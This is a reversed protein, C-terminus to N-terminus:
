LLPLENIQGAYPWDEVHQVLGARLPNNRVYEWKAEYSERSRIVHDFYGKEWYPPAFTATKLVKSLTGKLAKMWESLSISDVAFATFLHIHDPMLVYRGVTVGHESAHSSFTKFSNHVVDRALLKRRNHTCATIFFIPNQKYLWDLRKPAAM